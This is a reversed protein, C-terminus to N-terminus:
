PLVQLMGRLEELLSIIAQLIYSSRFPWAALCNGRRMAKENRTYLLIIFLVFHM